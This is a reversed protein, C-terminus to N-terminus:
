CVVRSCLRYCCCDADIVLMLRAVRVIETVEQIMLMVAMLSATQAASQCQRSKLQARNLMLETQVKNRVAHMVDVTRKSTLAHQM